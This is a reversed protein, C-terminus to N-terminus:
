AFHNAAVVTELQGRPTWNHVAIAAAGLAGAYPGLTSGQIRNRLAPGAIEESTAWLCELYEPVEILPGAVVIVDPDIVLSQHHLIWAHQIAIKRLWDVALPDQQRVAHLVDSLRLPRPASQLLSDAGAELHTTVASLLANVSAMSDVTRIDQGFTPPGDHNSEVTITPCFWDGIDGAVNTAGRYLKGDFVLGLGISNRVGLCALRSVDRGAGFWYEALAMSRLNNEISVPIHFQEQLLSVLPVHHWEEVSRCDLAVGQQPDVHGPFGVGIALVDDPSDGLLDGILSIFSDIVAQRDPLETLDRQVRRIPNQSFDISIGMFEQANFDVGIFRGRRPNLELLVPPRGLGRDSAITEILFGDRVLREVYVGITSPVLGLEGALEGRAVRGRARVCRILLDEAAAVAHPKRRITM